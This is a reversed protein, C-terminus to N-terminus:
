PRPARRCQKFACMLVNKEAGTYAGQGHLITVGRDMQNVLMHSPHDTLLASFRAALSSPSSRLCFVLIQPAFRDRRHGNVFYLMASVLGQYTEARLVSEDETVAYDVFTSMHAKLCRSIAAMLAATFPSSGAAKRM